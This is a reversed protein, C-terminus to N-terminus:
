RCWGPTGRGATRAGRPVQGAGDGAAVGGGGRRSVLTGDSLRVGALRDGDIELAAVTGPVIAIGLAAMQEAQEGDPPMTHSFFTVDASLQRFLLAQHVSMPGTALVGIAQDRIEWGHCYPCHM